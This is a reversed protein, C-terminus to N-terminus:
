CKLLHCMENWLATLVLTVYKHKGNIYFSEGWLVMCMFLISGATSLFM